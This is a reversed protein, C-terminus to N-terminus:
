EGQHEKKNNHASKYWAALQKSIVEYQLTIRAMNKVPLQRLDHLLRVQLKVIEIHERARLLYAEKDRTLNACYICMMLGMMEKKLEEGLSYRYERKMTQSSKFVDLLLDYSAKFVPLQTYLM